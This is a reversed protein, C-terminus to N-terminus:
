VAVMLLGVCWVAVIWVLVRGFPELNTKRGCNGTELIKYKKKGRRFDEWFLSILYLGSGPVKPRPCADVWLGNNDNDFLGGVVFRESFGRSGLFRM